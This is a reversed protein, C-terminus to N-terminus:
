SLAEPGVMQGVVDLEKVLNRCRGRLDHYTALVYGSQAVLTRLRILVVDRLAHGSDSPQAAFRDIQTQAARLDTDDGDLSDIDIFAQQDAGSLLDVWACPGVWTGACCRNSDAPMDLLSSGCYCACARSVAHVGHLLMKM